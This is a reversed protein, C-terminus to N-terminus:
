EVAELMRRLPEPFNSRHVTRGDRAFRAFIHALEHAAARSIFRVGTGDVTITKVTEPVDLLARIRDRGDIVSGSIAALRVTLAGRGSAGRTSGKSSPM